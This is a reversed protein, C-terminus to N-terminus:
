GRVVRVFVHWVFWDDISSLTLLCRKARGESDTISEADLNAAVPIGWVKDVWAHSHAAQHEDYLPDDDDPCELDTLIRDDFGETFRM